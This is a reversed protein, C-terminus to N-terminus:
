NPEEIPAGGYQVLRENAARLAKRVDDCRTCNVGAARLEALEKEAKQRKRQEDLFDLRTVSM